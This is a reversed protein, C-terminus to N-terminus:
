SLLLGMSGHGDNLKGAMQDMNRLFSGAVEFTTVLRRSVESMNTDLNKAGTRLEGVALKADAVVGRADAGAKGFEEMAKTRDEGAKRFNALAVKLNEQNIPDGLMGNLHALAIDLRQTVTSLNAVADAGAEGPKDLPHAKILLELERAVPTMSSALDGIQQITK